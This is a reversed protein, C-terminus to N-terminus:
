GATAKVTLYRVHDLINQNWLQSGLAFFYKILKNIGENYALEAAM